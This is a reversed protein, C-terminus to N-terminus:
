HAFPEAISLIERVKADIIDEVEAMNHIGVRDCFQVFEKHDVRSFWENAVTRAIGELASHDGMHITHEDPQTTQELPTAMYLMCALIVIALTIMAISILQNYHM